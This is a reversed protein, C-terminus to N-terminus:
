SEITEGSAVEPINFPVKDPQEEQSTLNIGVIVTITGNDVSMGSVYVSHNETNNATIIDNLLDKIEKTTIGQIVEFETTM